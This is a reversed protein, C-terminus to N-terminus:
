LTDIGTSVSGNPRDSSALSIILSRRAFRRFRRLALM